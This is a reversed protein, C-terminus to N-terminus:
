CVRVSMSRLLCQRMVPCNDDPSEGGEPTLVLECEGECLM